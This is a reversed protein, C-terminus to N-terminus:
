FHDYYEMLHADTPLAQQEPNTDAVPVRCTGFSLWDAGTNQVVRPITGSLPPIRSKLLGSGFFPSPKMLQAPIPLSRLLTEGENSQVM